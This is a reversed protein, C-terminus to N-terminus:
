GSASTNSHSTQSKAGPRGDGNRWKMKKWLKVAAAYLILLVLGSTVVTGFNNQLWIVRLQWFSDSYGKVDRALRFERMANQWEGKRYFSKALGLHAKYYKSNLHLVEQWYRESDEYRGLMFLENAKHVLQAFETQRFIQILNSMRDSIYLNGKSDVAISSPYNFLGLKNFGENKGGFSFLMGGQPDYQYVRGSGADIASMNGNGDVTIDQFLREENAFVAQAGFLRNGLLDKGAFNFKKLQGTDVSISTTYILGDKDIMVNSVSGPQKTIEKKLQEETYVQRKLYDLMNFPVSNAGFFGQFGGEEPDMVTLGQYGNKTAVYLFGRKDVTLKVPEFEYDSPLLTTDPRKYEKVFAGSRDYVAIRKNGTDAVYVHKEDVYVGNPDKLQGQGKQTGFAAVYSGNSDLQVVRNNKSDAIFLHDQGDIFLDNPNNLNPPGGNVDPPVMNLGIYGTPVYAPQVFFQGNGSDYSFTRYPLEAQATPPQLWPGTVLVAAIVFRLWKPM